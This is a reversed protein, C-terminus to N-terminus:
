NKWAYKLQFCAPVPGPVEKNLFRNQDVLKLTSSWTVRVFHHDNQDVLKLTSSWTVRVFHHDNSFLFELSKILIIDVVKSMLYRPKSMLCKAEVFNSMLCRPKSMFWKATKQQFLGSHRLPWLQKGIYTLSKIRKPSQLILWWPCLSMSLEIEDFISM